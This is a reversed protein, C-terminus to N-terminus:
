KEKNDNKGGCCKAKQKRNVSENLTINQSNEEEEELLEKKQGLGLELMKEILKIFCENVNINNKASGEIIEIDENERLSNVM